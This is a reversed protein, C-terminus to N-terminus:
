QFLYTTEKGGVVPITLLRGNLSTIQRRLNNIRQQIANFWRAPLKSGWLPYVVQDRLESLPILRGVNEHVYKFVDWEADNLRHSGYKTRVSKSLRDIIFDVQAPHAAGPGSVRVMNGDPTPRVQVMAQTTAPPTIAQSTEQAMSAFLKNAFPDLWGAVKFKRKIESVTKQITKCKVSPPDKAFQALEELYVIRNPRTVIYSYIAQEQVTLRVDNTSQGVTQQNM